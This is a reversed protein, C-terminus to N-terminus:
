PPRLTCAAGSTLAAFSAGLLLALGQQWPHRVNVDETELVHDFGEARSVHSRASRAQTGNQSGPDRKTLQQVASPQFVYGQFAIACNGSTRRGALDADTFRDM